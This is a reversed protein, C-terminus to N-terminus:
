QFSHVFLLLGGILLTFFGHVIKGAVYTHIMLPTGELMGRTQAICSFGGFSTFTLALLYRLALPLSAQSLLSIGTTIETLGTLLWTLVPFPATFTRIVSALISFLIIYGGLRTITEFARMISSDLLHMFPTESLASLEDSSTSSSFSDPRFILRFTLSTFVMSIYLIFFTIGTYGSLHLSGSLLYSSLFMPSPNNSFTLLYRAESETIKGDRLLDATLRAGMPYGCFAGLLLIYTGYLSVGFLLHFLPYGKKLIRAALGTHILFDSLIMFPLLSPLVHFFWLTVGEASAAFTENPFRLFYFFITFLSLIWLYIKM